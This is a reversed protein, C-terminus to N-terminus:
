KGGKEHTPLVLACIRSSTWWGRGRRQFTPPAKKKKVKFVRGSPAGLRFFFEKKFSIKELTSIKNNQELALGLVNMGVSFKFLSNPILCSFKKKEEGTLQKIKVKKKRKIGKKPISFGQINWNTGFL